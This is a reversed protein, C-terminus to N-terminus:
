RASCFNGCGWRCCRARRNRRAHFLYRRYGALVEDAGDGSLAVTVNERALACVRYTPLASADAFPEDFLDILRDVLDISDPDVMRSHHDTHYRTAMQQAYNSEDFAEDDFGISCTKVPQSSLGAMLAVVASADVGGSLFAGLPVDAIMRLDVAERLEQILAEPSADRTYAVNAFQVDWYADIKPAPDFRRWILRHAAPLKAISKYISRPDPIYGFALYEEIALPDIARALGPYPLLSKLEPDSFLRAM